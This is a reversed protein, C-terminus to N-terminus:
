PFGHVSDGKPNESDVVFHFQRLVVEAAYDGVMVDTPCGSQSLLGFSVPAAPWAVRVTACLAPLAAMSSDLAGAV